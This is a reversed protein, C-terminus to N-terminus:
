KLINSLFKLMRLAKKGEEAKVATIKGFADVTFEHRSHLIKKLPQGLDGKLDNPNDSDFSKEQGMMSFNIKMNKVSKELTAATESVEKIDYVETNVTSGTMEGMMMTTAMNMNNTVEIKQGKQFNLKGSIKQAFGNVTATVLILLLIKKM